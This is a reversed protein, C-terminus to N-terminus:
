VKRTLLNNLQAVHQPVFYNWNIRPHLNQKNRAKWYKEWMRSGWKKNMGFLKYLNVTAFIGNIGFILLFKPLMQLQRLELRMEMLRGWFFQFKILNGDDFCECSTCSWLKHYFKGRRISQRENCVLLAVNTEDGFLYFFNHFFFKSSHARRCLSNNRVFLVITDEKHNAWPRSLM